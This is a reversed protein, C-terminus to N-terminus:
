TLPTQPQPSNPNMDMITNEPLRIQGVVAVIQQRLLQDVLPEACPDRRHPPAIRVDVLGDDTQQGGLGTELHAISNGIHGVYIAKNVFRM